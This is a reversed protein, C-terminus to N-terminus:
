PRAHHPPSMHAATRPRPPAAAALSRAPSEATPLLMSPIPCYDAATSVPGGGGGLFTPTRKPVFGISDLRVALQGPGLTYLAALRDRDAEDLWFGTETM